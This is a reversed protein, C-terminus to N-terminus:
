PAGLGRPLDDTRFSSAPLGEQNFLNPEDASGWAYRVAAPDAVADAWVLVTSGDIAAQAPVFAGDAAAITFHTPAGGKSSLGSGVHDFSIRIKSGEKKMSKYIPGSYVLGGKGYTKALAWLALRRGVEQKNKPHIDRPNGIDMTVAMGTNPRRLALMQAERLEAPAPNENNGYIFPAIQVYLFPFDGRDWARRWDDIMAPFLARYQLARSVNSEGQYWLAGRIGFPAVPAIMGNYLATPSNQNFAPTPPFRPLEKLAPGAKYKWQGAMSIEGHSSVIKLQDPKGAFGGGQGTDLVRVALVNRGTKVANSPAAYIRPKDWAGPKMEGGILTGNLWATDMDDLPGLHVKLDLCTWATPIEIERRFWVIGDFDPLGKQEWRAPLEMKAWGADDFDAKGPAADLKDWWARTDPAALEPNKRVKEVFALGDKFDPITRLTAESTWAEAVTGGWNSGILGVPVGLEKHIMRGFFYGVASFGAVSGPACATWAGTCDQQPTAAYTNKVDFLRIKPYDAAKIEEAANDSASVPWEMNSQGSCIWVEGIMVDKLTIENAGRITLTHPGGAEPTRLRVKWAGQADARAVLPERLWSASVKVEAGADTWGWIPADSKQQLVMHEGIIAPLRVQAPDPAAGAGWCAAGLGCVAVLLRLKM